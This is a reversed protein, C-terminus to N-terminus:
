FVGKGLFRRNKDNKRLKKGKQLQPNANAQSNQTPTAGNDSGGQHQGGPHGRNENNVNENAQSVQTIVSDM